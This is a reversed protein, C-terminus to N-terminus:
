LGGGVENLSTSGLESLESCFTRVYDYVLVWKMSVLVEWNVSNLVFHGSMTM